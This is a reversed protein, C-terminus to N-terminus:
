PVSSRLTLILWDFFISCLKAAAPTPMFENDPVIKVM